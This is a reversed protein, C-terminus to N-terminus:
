STLHEFFRVETGGPLLKLGKPIKRKSARHLESRHWADYHARELWYTILWFENPLDMPSIVDMRVFGAANDVLRPRQKFAERVSETKGNRVTFRSLAVFLCQSTDSTM